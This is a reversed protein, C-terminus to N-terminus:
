PPIPKECLERPIPSSCSLLALLVIAIASKMFGDYCNVTTV